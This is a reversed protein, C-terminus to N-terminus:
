PPPSVGILAQNNDAGAVTGVAYPIIIHAPVGCAILATRLALARQMALQMTNAMNDQAGPARTILPLTTASAHCFPQLAKLAEPSVVASQPAFEIPVVLAAPAVM